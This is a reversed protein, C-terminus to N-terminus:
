APLGVRKLLGAFRPDSRLSDLKPDDKLFMTLFPSLEDCAKDLWEFAHDREGLGAYVAAVAFPDAYKVKSRGILDGLIEQAEVNKGAVALAHGLVGAAIPAEGFFHSAKRLEAFAEEYEGRRAYAQGLWFHALAYGPDIELAQRCRDITRGYQRALYFVWAVHHKIVPLLPELEEARQVVAIAEGRRGLAALCLGYWTHAYWYGPNLEIARKVEREAGM